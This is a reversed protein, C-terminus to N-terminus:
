DWAARLVDVVRQALQADFRRGLRAGVLTVLDDASVPPGGLYRAAALLGQEHLFVEGGFERLDRTLEFLRRVVLVSDEFAARYAATGERGREEVFAALARQRDEELQEASWYPPDVPRSRQM